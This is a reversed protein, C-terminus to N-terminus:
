FEFHYNLELSSDINAVAVDAKLFSAVKLLAWM